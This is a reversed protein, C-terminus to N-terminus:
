EASDWQPNWVVEWVHGDPDQFYGSYGGWFTDHPSVTITAGAIRAQKMVQDVEEKSSVNHGLTFETASPKTQQLKTDYAISARHWIALKLGAQLDFFAVAGHEFEKGIIGDTSWGLGDRYFHLSKELDDVGLTLVTIRPKM